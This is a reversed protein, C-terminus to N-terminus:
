APLTPQTPRKRSRCVRVRLRVCEPRDPRDPQEPRDRRSPEWDGARVGDSPGTGAPHNGIELGHGTATRVRDPSRGFSPREPQEPRDRRSPEWDGSRAGDRHPSPRSVPRLQPRSVPRLQPRSIPRLWAARAARAPGQPITGLRWVTGRRPASETQLGASATTQLGASATTQLNASATTQLNASALGSPGTGAPHNGIELGHGTATRVRDNAM